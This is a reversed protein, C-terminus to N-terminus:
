RIESQTTSFHRADLKASGNWTWARSFQHLPAIGSHRLASEVDRGNKNVAGLASHNFIHIAVAHDIKRAADAAEVRAMSRRRHYRRDLLLKVSKQVRAEVYQRVLAIHPQRFPQIRNSRPRARLLGHKDARTGFSDLVRDFDGASVRLARRHDGKFISEMATRVHRQSQGALRM